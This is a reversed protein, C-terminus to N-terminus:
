YFQIILFNKTGNIKSYDYKFSNVITEVALKIDEACHRLPMDIMGIVVLEKEFYKNTIIAVLGMFALMQKNSWIDSILCISKADNLKKLIIDQVMELVKKIITESFTETCPVKFPILDRLYPNELERHATNSSIFYKVLKLTNDNIEFNSTSINQNDYIHFWSGLIKNHARSLHAKINSTEGLKAKFPKVNCFLCQFEIPLKKDEITTKSQTFNLYATYSKTVGDIIFEKKPFERNKAKNIYEKIFSKSNGTLNVSEINDLTQSSIEKFQVEREQSIVDNAAANQNQHSANNAYLLEQNLKKRAKQQKKQVGGKAKKFNEYANTNTNKNANQEEDSSSTIKKNNSRTNSKGM